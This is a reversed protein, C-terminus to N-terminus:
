FFTLFFDESKRESNSGSRWMSDDVYNFYVFCTTGENKKIKKELSCMQVKFIAPTGNFDYFRSIEERYYYKRLNQQNM